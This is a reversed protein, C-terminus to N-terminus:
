ELPGGVAQIPVLSHDLTVWVAIAQAGGLSVQSVARFFSGRSEMKTSALALAVFDHNLRRGRNEGTQVDSSAQMALPAVFVVYEKSRAIPTFSVEVRDGDVLAELNGVNIQQGGPPTQGRFWGDWEQGNVVFCPTYVSGRKWSASYLQQRATFEARAFRDKWGLQDWYDVHFAVPVISRREASGRYRQSIWAEAPPCSSCGESTYLELLSVQREGSELRTAAFGSAGSVCFLFALLWFVKVDEPLGIWRCNNRSRLNKNVV